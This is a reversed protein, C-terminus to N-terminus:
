LIKPDARRVARVGLSSNSGTPDGDCYLGARVSSAVFRAVRSNQPHRYWLEGSNIDAPPLGQYNANSLWCNMDIGRTKNRMLCEELPEVIEKLQGNNLVHYSIQMETKPVVLMKRGVNIKSFKADLWEARWPSRVQTIDNFLEALQLSPIQKGNGDYAKGSNLLNLFDAYQRITLMHADEQRLANWANQWTKGQHTRDMAVLLDPYSYSGHQRGELTIYRDKDQIEATAPQPASTVLSEASEESKLIREVAGEIPEGLWNDLKEIRKM